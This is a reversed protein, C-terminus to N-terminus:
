VVLMRIALVHLQKTNVNFGEGVRGGQGGEVQRFESYMVPCGLASQLIFWCKAAMEQVRGM